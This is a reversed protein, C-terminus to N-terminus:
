IGEFCGLQDHEVDPQVENEKIVRLHVENGHIDGENHASENHHIADGHNIVHMDEHVVGAEPVMIGDMLDLRERKIRGGDVVGKDTGRKKELRREKLLTNCKEHEVRLHLARHWLVHHTLSSDGDVADICLPVECTSCMWTTNRNCKGGSCLKCILRGEKNKDNRAIRVPVHNYKLSRHLRIKQLDQEEIWKKLRHVPWQQNHAKKQHIINDIEEDTTACQVGNDLSQLQATILETQYKANTRHSVPRQTHSAAINQNKASCHDDTKAQNASLHQVMDRMALIMQSQQRQTHQLQKIASLISASDNPDFDLPPEHLSANLAHLLHAEADDTAQVVPDHVAHHLHALQVPMPEHQQSNLSADNMELEQRSEEQSM